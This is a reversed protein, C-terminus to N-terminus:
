FLLEPPMVGAFHPLLDCYTAWPVRWIKRVAVRWATCVNDMTNDYIPLFASGYFSTCYKHFLQNRMFSSTNKFDALFSNCQINFDKICKSSDCDFVNDKLIHGLHNISTVVKIKTGNIEMDPIAVIDDKSKYVILQSKDNFCVDFRKAYKVCIELRINLAEISPALLKIDDAFVFVGAFVSGMYCGVHSLKLETILNDM